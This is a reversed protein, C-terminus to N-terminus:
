RPWQVRTERPMLNREGQTAALLAHDLEGVCEDCQWSPDPGDFSSM